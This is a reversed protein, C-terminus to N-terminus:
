DWKVGTDRALQLLIPVSDKYRTAAEASLNGIPEAGLAAIRRSMDPQNIIAAGVRNEVVVAISQPSFLSALMGAVM